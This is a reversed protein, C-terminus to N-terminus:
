ARLRVCIVREPAACASVGIIPNGSMDFAPVRTNEQPGRGDAGSREAAPLCTRVAPGRSQYAWADAIGGCTRTGGYAASCRPGIAQRGPTRAQTGRADTPIQNRHGERRDGRGGGPVVPAGSGADLHHVEAGATVPAADLAPRGRDLIPRGPRDLIGDLDVSSPCGAAGPDAAPRGASEARSQQLSIARAVPQGVALVRPV